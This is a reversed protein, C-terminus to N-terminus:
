FTLIKLEEPNHFQSSWLDSSEFEKGFGKTLYNFYTNITELSNSFKMTRVGCENEEVLAYKYLSKSTRLLEGKYFYQIKGNKLTKTSTM